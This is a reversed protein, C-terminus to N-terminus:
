VLNTLSQLESTHEESRASIGHRCRNQRPIRRLFLPCSALKPNRRSRFRELRAANVPAPEKLSVLVSAVLVGPPRLSDRPKKAQSRFLTTYPFLPPSPLR